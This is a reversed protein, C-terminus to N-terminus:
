LQCYLVKPEPEVFLEVIEHVLLFTFDAEYFLPVISESENNLTLWKVSNLIDNNRVVVIM